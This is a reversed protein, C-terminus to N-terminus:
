QDKNGVNNFGQRMQIKDANGVYNQGASPMWKRGGESVSAGGASNPAMRQGKPTGMNGKRNPMQAQGFNDHENCMGTHQNGTYKSNAKYSSVSDSLPGYPTADVSYGDPTTNQWGMRKSGQPSARKMDNGGKRATTSNQPKFEM